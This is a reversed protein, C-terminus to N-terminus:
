AEDEVTIGLRDALADAQEVTLTLSVETGNSYGGCELAARLATGVVKCRNLTGAMGTLWDEFPPTADYLDRIAVTATGHPFTSEGHYRFSTYIGQPTREVKVRCTGAEADMELVSVEAVSPRAPQVPNTYLAVYSEGVEIPSTPDGLMARFDPDPTTM